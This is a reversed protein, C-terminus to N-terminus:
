EEHRERELETKIWIAFVEEGDADLITLRHWAGDAFIEFDFCGEVEEEDPLPEANGWLQATFVGDPLTLRLEAADEADDAGATAGTALIALSASTDDGTEIIVNGFDNVGPVTLVRDLCPSRLMLTWPAATECVGSEAYSATASLKAM